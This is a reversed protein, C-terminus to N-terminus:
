SVDSRSAPSVQFRGCAVARAGNSSSVWLVSSVRTGARGMGRRPNRCPDAMAPKPANRAAHVPACADGDAAPETTMGVGGESAGLGDADGVGFTTVPGICQACHGAYMSRAPLAYSV